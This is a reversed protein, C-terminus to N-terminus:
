VTDKLRNPLKTQRGSKTAARATPASPATSPGPAVERPEQRAGASAQAAAANPKRGKAKRQQKLENLADLMALLHSVSDDDTVTPGGEADWLVQVECKIHSASCHTAARSDSDVDPEEEGDSDSDFGSLLEGACTRVDM